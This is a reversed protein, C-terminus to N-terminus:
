LCKSWVDPNRFARRVRQEWKGRLRSARTSKPRSRDTILELKYFHEITKRLRGSHSSKPNTKELNRYYDRIEKERVAKGQRRKQLGLDRGAAQAMGSLAAPEFSIKMEQQKIIVGLDIAACIALSRRMAASRDVATKAGSPNFWEEVLRILSIHKLVSAAYWQDSDIRYKDPDIRAL